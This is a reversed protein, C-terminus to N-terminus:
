FFMLTSYLEPHGVGRIGERGGAARGAALVDTDRSDRLRDEPARDGGARAVDVELGRRFADLDAQADVTDQYPRREQRRGEAPREDRAELHERIEEGVPGIDRL